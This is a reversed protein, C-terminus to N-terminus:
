LHYQVAILPMNTTDSIRRKPGYDLKLGENEQDLVPAWLNLSFHNFRMGILSDASSNSFHM